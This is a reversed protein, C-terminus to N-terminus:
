PRAMLAYSGVAPVRASPNRRRRELQLLLQDGLALLPQDGILQQQELVGVDDGQAAVAVHFIQQGAVFHQAAGADCEIGGVAAAVHGIVTGALDDAIRDQIQAFPLAVHASIHAGDLLHEDVRKASKPM